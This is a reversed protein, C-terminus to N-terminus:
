LFTLYWTTLFNVLAKKFDELVTLVIMITSQQFKLHLIVNQM